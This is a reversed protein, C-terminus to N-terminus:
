LESWPAQRDRLSYRVETHGIVDELGRRRDSFLIGLFGLGLPIAALALGFLRRISLRLTV